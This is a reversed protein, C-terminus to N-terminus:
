SGYISSLKKLIHILSKQEGEDLHGFVETLHKTIAAKGEALSKEGKKTMALRIVRRDDPDATRELLGDAVLPDILSTASSPTVHMCEAIDKMTPTPHTRVAHLAKLRLFPLASVGDRHWTKEHILQKTSFVLSVLEDLQAPSHSM